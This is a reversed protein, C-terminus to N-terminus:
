HVLFQLASKKKEDKEAGVKKTDHDTQILGNTLSTGSVLVGEEVKFFFFFFFFSSYCKLSIQCEQFQLYFKSIGAKYCPPM